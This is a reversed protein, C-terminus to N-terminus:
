PSARATVVPNPHVNKRYQRHCNTCTANIQDGAATLGAVNKAQIAKSAATGADVLTKSQKMWDGQDVAHGRMMLVNGSEGLLVASRQLEQWEKDTQPGGRAVSLLIDNAGPYVLCGHGPEDYRGAPVRGTRTRIGVGGGLLGAIAFWGSKRMHYGRNFLLSRALKDIGSALLGKAMDIKEANYKLPAANALAVQQAQATLAPSLTKGKLFAEV